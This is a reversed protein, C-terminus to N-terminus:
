AATPYARAMVQRLQASGTVTFGQGGSLRLELGRGQQAAQSAAAALATIVNDSVSPVRVLDIVVPAARQEIVTYLAEHLSAAVAADLPGDAWVLAAEGLRVVTFFSM